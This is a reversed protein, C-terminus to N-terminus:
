IRTSSVGSVELFQISYHNSVTSAGYAELIKINQSTTKPDVVCILHLDLVLCAQALGIGLNGSSSEVITYGPEIQGDAFANKLMNVAPRDKVSGGPNFMELKAFIQFDNDKFVKALKILPTNGVTTLIGSNLGSLYKHAVPSKSNTQKRSSVKPSILANSSSSKTQLKSCLM